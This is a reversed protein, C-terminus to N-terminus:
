LFIRYDINLAESLLRAIKRGIVRKGNEMESIHRQPIGTKESLQRQTIGEKYRAGSLATGPENDAFEAFYERWPRLDSTDKFGISEMLEIAKDQKSVPGTFTLVIKKTPRKKTHAPM